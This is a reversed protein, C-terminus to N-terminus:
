RSPCSAESVSTSRSRARAQIIRGLDKATLWVGPWESADKLLGDLTPNAACYAAAEIIAKVDVLRVLSLEQNDWFAARVRKWRYNLMRAIKSNLREAFCSARGAPDYIVLHYHNSGVYAALVRIGFRACAWGLVYVFAKTVAPGPKLFM